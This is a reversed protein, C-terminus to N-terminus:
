AETSRDCPRCVGVLDIRHHDGNFGHQDATRSLERDLAQELDPPLTMDFVDGCAECILHHHHRGTITETLEFRAHDDTTVIRHVVGAEELVVLNRYASSQALEGDKALIGAIALPGSSALLVEVLRRRNSTYRQGHTALRSAVLHHADYGSDRDTNPM